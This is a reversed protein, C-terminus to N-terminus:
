ARAKAWDLGFGALYKRLRDTDNAKAKQARSVAFLKRGAEALSASDRCVRVVEALQVADFRDLADAEKDGLIQKLLGADGTDRTAGTRTSRMRAFEREVAPAGIRGSDALTALRTVVARLDRFNGSWPEGPHTAHTLFTERGEKNFRVARGESEAFRSLEYDLNPAIDERRERLGPLRFSWLNIRAFLDERFRGSAVEVALDRNTGCLLQFDSSVEKDSGLPMFRKEELARLLLTQEEAGMEGIEDLFLVGGDASKLLGPRDAVAGTFAGRVHGFLTSLANDGRLTACNAEVFKGRVQGKTRKLECIRRALQSKGAGTPGTLLVPAKTRVAVTEIEDMLTNFAENRTEIGGKLFSVSERAEAAFRAALKDYKALDLDIVQVSGEAGVRGKGRPPSTQVLKAPIRGSECMLFLCIQAVHTGTTIHAHYEEEDTNFPYSSAFDHLAAYVSEFDWWDAITVFHTNVTTEPSVSGIDDSVEKALSSFNPGALLEFRDWRLHEQRFLGVTPRWKEWREARVLCDLTTGLFGLIVQKKM